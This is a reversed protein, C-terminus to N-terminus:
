RVRGGGILAPTGPRGPAVSGGDGLGPMDLDPVCGSGSPNPHMRPPCVLKVSTATPSGASRQQKDGAAGGPQTLVPKSSLAPMGLCATHAANPRTGAACALCQSPNKPDTIYNSSPRQKGGGVKSCDAACAMAGNIIKAVQQGGCATCTRAAINAVAKPGCSHCQNNDAYENPGCPLCMPVMVPKASMTQGPSGGGASNPTASVKAADIAPGIQATGKSGQGPVMTSLKTSRLGNTLKAQQKGSPAPANPDVLVGNQCIDACSSGGSQVSALHPQQWPKCSKCAGDAVYSKEGACPICPGDGDSKTDQACETCSWKTQTLSVLGVQIEVSTSTATQNPECFTKCQGDVALTQGQPCGCTMAGMEFVLSFPSNCSCETLVTKGANNNVYDPTFNPKCQCTGPSTLKPVANAVTKCSACHDQGNPWHDTEPSCGEQVCPFVEVGVADYLNTCQFGLACTPPNPNPQCNGEGDCIEDFGSMCAKSIPGGGADDGGFVADLADGVFNKCQDVAEAYKKAINEYEGPAGAVNCGCQIYFPLANLAPIAAIVETFTLPTTGDVFAQLLDKAASPLPASLLAEAILKGLAGDILSKCEDITSFAGSVAASTMAAVTMAMIPDGSAESLCGGAQAAIQAAEAAADLPALAEFCATISAQAVNPATTTLSLALITGRLLGWTGVNVARMVVGAHWSRTASSKQRM